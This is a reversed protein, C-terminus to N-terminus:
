RTRQRQWNLCFMRTDYESTFVPINWQRALKVEKDAGTSEGPFRYVADVRSLQHYDFEYWFDAPHPMVMHTLLTLHPIVPFAINDKYLSMGIRIARNTNEVPDPRTYPGAIYVHPLNTNM